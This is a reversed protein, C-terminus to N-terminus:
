EGPPSTLLESIYEAAQLIGKDAITDKHVVYDFERTFRQFYASDCMKMMYLLVAASLALICRFIVIQKIVSPEGSAKRIQIEEKEPEDTDTQAESVGCEEECPVPLYEFM